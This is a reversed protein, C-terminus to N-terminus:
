GQTVITQSLSAALKSQYETFFDHFRSKKTNKLGNYVIETDNIDDAAYEVM